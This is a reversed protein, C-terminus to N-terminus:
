RSLQAAVQPIRQVYNRTERYGTNAITHEPNDWQCEFRRQGPCDRSPAIAGPGGNYAAYVLRTDGNNQRYLDAYIRTGLAINCQNNMLCTQVEQPSSGRMYGAATGPMIQMCGIAGAPSQMARCGGSEVRMLAQLNRAQEDNLGNQRAAAAVIDDPATLGALASAQAPSFAGSAVPAGGSNYAVGRSRNEYGAPHVLTAVPQQVCQIANWMGYVQNTLVAKMLTDILIWSCLIIFFGIFINLFTDKAKKVADSNGGATVLRFGAVVILIAAIISLIVILWRVVNNILQTVHCAQCPEEGTGGCPVLGAASAAIPACTIILAILFVLACKLM